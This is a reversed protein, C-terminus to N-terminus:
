GLTLAREAAAAEAAAAAIEHSASSEYLLLRYKNIIGIVM